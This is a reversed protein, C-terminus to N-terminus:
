ERCMKGHASPPHSGDSDRRLWPAVPLGRERLVQPNYLRSIYRTGDDSLVTVVTHGPGLEQALRVAGAV